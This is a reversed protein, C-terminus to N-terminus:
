TEYKCVGLSESSGAIPRARVLAAFSPAIISCM